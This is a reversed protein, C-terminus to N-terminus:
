NLKFRVPLKMAVREKKGKHLGPELNAMTKIVRLAEEGCGGGIDRIINHNSTHGDKEVVFEVVVLGEISSEKAQAPYKINKYLYNLMAKDGGKYSPLADVNEFITGQYDIRNDAIKSCSFVLVIIALLPSLGLYALKLNSTSKQKTMMKFRNKLNVYNFLNVISPSSFSNQQQILLQSYADISTHNEIMIRDVFYEHQATLASRTLYLIPNWWFFIKAIEILMLDFSHKQAVHIKEHHIIINRDENSYKINPLFISNFYSCPSEIKDSIYIQNSNLESNKIKHLLVISKALRYVLLLSVIAYLFYLGNLYNLKSLSYHKAQVVIEEMNLQILASNSNIQIDISPILISFVVALILYIRNWQHLTTKRLFFYYPISLLLSVALSEIFYHMM